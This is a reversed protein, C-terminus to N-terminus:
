ESEGSQKPYVIPLQPRCLVAGTAAETEGDVNCSTVITLTLSTPSLSEGSSWIQRSNHYSTLTWPAQCVLLLRVTNEPCSIDLIFKSTHCCPSLAHLSVSLSVNMCASVFPRPTWSRRRHGSMSCTTPHGCRQPPRDGTSQKKQVLKRSRM